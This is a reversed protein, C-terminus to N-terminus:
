ELNTALLLRGILLRHWWRRADLEGPIPAVQGLLVQRRVDVLPVVAIVRGVRSRLSRRRHEPPDGLEPMQLSGGTVLRRVDLVDPVEAPLDGPLAVPELRIRLSYRNWDGSGAALDRDELEALRTTEWVSHDWGEDVTVVDHVELPVGEIVLPQGDGAVVSGDFDPGDRLTAQRLGGVLRFLLQDGVRVLDVDDPVMRQRLVDEQSGAVVHRELDPVQVRQRLLVTQAPVGILDEAERPTRAPRIARRDRLIPLDPHVVRALRLVRDTLSRSRHSRATGPQHPRNLPLVDHHSSKVLLNRLDLFLYNCEM